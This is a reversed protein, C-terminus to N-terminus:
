EIDKQSLKFVVPEANFHAQMVLEHEDAKLIIENMETSRDRASPPALFLDGETIISKFVQGKVWWRGSHQYTKHMVGNGVTMAFEYAADKKLVLATDYVVGNHTVVSKYAGLKIVIPQAGEMLAVKQRFEATEEGVEGREIYSLAQYFAEGSVVKQKFAFFSGVFLSLCVVLLGILALFWKKSLFKKM